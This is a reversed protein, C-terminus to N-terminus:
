SKTVDVHFKELSVISITEPIFTRPSLCARGPCAIGNRSVCNENSQESVIIIIRPHASFYTGNKDYSKKNKM